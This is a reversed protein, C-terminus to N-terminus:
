PEERPSGPGPRHLSRQSEKCAFFLWSTGGAVYAIEHWLGLGTPGRFCIAALLCYFLLRLSDKPDPTRQNM